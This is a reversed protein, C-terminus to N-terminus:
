GPMDQPPTFLDGSFFDFILNREHRRLRKGRAVRKVGRAILTNLPLEDALERALTQAEARRGCEGLAVIRVWQLSQRIHLPVSHALGQEALQAAESMRGCKSALVARMLLAGPSRHERVVELADAHRGDDFSLRSALATREHFGREELSAQTFDAVTFGLPAAVEDAFLRDLDLEVYTGSSSPAPDQSVWVRGLGTDSARREFIVSQITIPKLIDDYINVEPRAEEARHALVRALREVLPAGECSGESAHREVDELRRCSNLFTGAPSFQLELGAETQGHNTQALYGDGAGCARVGFHDRGSEVARTEGSRLDFLVFTWMPGPRWRRLFAIAEDLTRAQRLVLDGIALLPLSRTATVRAFNQHAVLGIGAENVASISAFHVGDAAISVRKLEAAEGSTSGGKAPHHVVVLPHTDFRGVGPFDLNRALVFDGDETRRAVSTCGFSMRSWSMLPTEMWANAMAGLDPGSFAMLLDDEPFGAGKALAALEERVDAPVGRHLTRIWALLAREGLARLPRPLAHLPERVKMAFYRPVEDSLLGQAV